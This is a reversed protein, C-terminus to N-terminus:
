VTAEVPAERKEAIWKGLGNRIKDLRDYAADPDGLTEEM